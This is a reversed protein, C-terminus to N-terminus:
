RMMMMMVESFVTATAMSVPMAFLSSWGYHNPGLEAPLPEQLPYRFTVAVYVTLIALFCVSAIGQVQDTLISVYLGGFATYIMTTVGVVVIIPYAISGVYDAFLSGITTYEALMAISMNLSTLLVVYTQPIVGYRWGVYDSMSVVQPLKAQVLDGLFAIMVIPLGASIAYSLLGIYGAYSAYSPPGTFVWAGVASAYFSWAIRLMSASSRATLFEETTGKSRRNHRWALVLAFAAFGVLLTISLTYCLIIYGYQDM